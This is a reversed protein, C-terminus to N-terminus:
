RCVNEIDFKCEFSRIFAEVRAKDFEDFADLNQWATLAIRNEMEDYPTMVIFMGDDVRGEVVDALDDRLRKCDSDDLRTTGGGCNYWVVVGGHEMNHVAVEKPVPVESVGWAAAQNAHKGNTPPNSNYQVTEGPALHRSVGSGPQPTEDEFVQVGYESPYDPHNKSHGGGTNLLISGAAALALVAVVAAVVGLFSRRRTRRQAAERDTQQKRRSM